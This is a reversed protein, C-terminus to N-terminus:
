ECPRRPSWFEQVDELTKGKTEPVMKWVFFWGVLTTAAFVWFTGSPSWEQLTPFLLLVIFNTLWLSFSCIATATGRVRTPFIESVVLWSGPGIGLAYSACAALIVALVALPSFVNFTYQVALLILSGLLGAASIFLLLRRGVRDIASIAVLTSLFLAIGITVTGLLASSESKFGAQLLVRPTYSLLANVGSIQTFVMLFVGVVLATRLPPRILQMVSDGERDLAVRIRLLEEDAHRIGAVRIMIHRAEEMLGQKALWRPSEPLFLLLLLFLVAPAAGSAFMWRWAYADKWEMSGLLAIWWDAGYAVLMGLTVALQNLTVARGRIKAPAIEALYVPSVPNTFGIALGAVFRGLALQNVTQAVATLISSVLFLCAAVVMTKRRGAWDSLWGAFVCGGMCGLSLASVALGLAEPSLRFHRELFTVAGSMVASGFGFLFGGLAAVASVFHLYLGRTPADELANSDLQGNGTKVLVRM